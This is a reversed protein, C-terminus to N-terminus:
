SRRSPDRESPAAGTSEEADGAGGPPIEGAAADAVVPPGESQPRPAAVEAVAEDSPTETRGGKETGELLKRGTRFATAVAPVVTAADTFDECYDDLMDVSAIIPNTRWLRRLAKRRLMEPVNERLFVSFDADPALTDPDPLEEPPPPDPPADAVADPEAVPEPAPAKTEEADRAARQRKLRSWRAAFGEREETM